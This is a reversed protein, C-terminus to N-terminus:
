RSAKNHLASILMSAAINHFACLSFRSLVIVVFQHLKKGNKFKTWNMELFTLITAM